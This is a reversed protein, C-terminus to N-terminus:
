IDNGAVDLVLGFVEPVASKEVNSLAVELKLILKLVNRINTTDTIMENM